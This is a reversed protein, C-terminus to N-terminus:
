ENEQNAAAATAGATPLGKRLAQAIPSSLMEASKQQIPTRGLTARGGWDM